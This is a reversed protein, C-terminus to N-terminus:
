KKNLPSSIIVRAVDTKSIVACAGFFGLGNNSLNTPLNAAASNFLGGQWNTESLMARIYEAHAPALSYRKETILTGPPFLVTEMAPAFIQSVDLTPLTYYLLRAKTSDPDANEYGPVSSWDLLIEYMAPRKANYPNAVWVIRFLKTNNQRVYRLFIFETNQVMTAQASIIRNDHNVILSYTKGTKGGFVEQSQYFGPRNQDETFIYVKDDTSVIVGAGVVAEPEDSQSVVPKLLRIEQVKIENTINGDVVIFDGSLVDLPWEAQQECATFAMATIATVLILYLGRRMNEEHKM